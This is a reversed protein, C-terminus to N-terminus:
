DSDSDSDSESEDSDSSDSDSDSSENQRAADEEEDRRQKLETYMELEEKDLGRVFVTYEEIYKQTHLCTHGSICNYEAQKNLVSPTMSGLLAVSSPTRVDLENM